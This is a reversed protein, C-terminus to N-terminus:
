EETFKAKFRDWMDKLGETKEVVRRWFHGVVRLDDVASDLKQMTSGPTIPDTGSVIEGPAISAVSPEALGIEVYKDGLVGLSDITVSAGKRVMPAFRARVTMGVSIRDVGARRVFALETVRGAEVGALRVPAGPKLGAISRFVASFRLDGPSSLAERKLADATFYALLAAFLFFFLVRAKAATSVNLEM